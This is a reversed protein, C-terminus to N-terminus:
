APSFTLRLGMGLNPQIFRIEALFDHRIVCCFVGLSQVESVTDQDALVSQLKEDGEAIPYFGDQAVDGACLSNVDKFHLHAFDRDMEENVIWWCFRERLDYAQEFLDGSVAHPSDVVYTSVELSAEPFFVSEPTITGERARDPISVWFRYPLIDL